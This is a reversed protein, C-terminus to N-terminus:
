HPCNPIRFSVIKTKWGAASTPAPFYEATYWFTCARVPDVDLSSYNGWRAASHTQSGGGPQLTIEGQLVGPPDNPRRIAARIGPFVTKSAASFGAAINGKADMAVSGMWRHVKDKPAYTGQQKLTWPGSGPRNLEYWRVGAVDTGTADVTHNFVLTERTGFNRYQARWMPWVTLTELRQATGPQPVCAALLSTDCLVSDFKAVKIRSHLKFTSAPPNAWNVSFAFVEIRDLGGFREGDVARVFFNPTGPAPPPGDLDSPLLVLSPPKVAFEVQRAPQGALMKDREFVWVDLGSSPFGRQTSMYYGDPWVGIKPYDGDVLTGNQMVTQFAYLFWGDNVPDPGQSIAICQMHDDLAFQSVLWRDALQDYRVIPDGANQQECPGGFGEWLTNIDSPGALLAGGKSFIVFKSNVM